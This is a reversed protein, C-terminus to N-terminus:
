SLALCYMIEAGCRGHEESAFPTTVLEGEDLEVQASDDDPMRELERATM